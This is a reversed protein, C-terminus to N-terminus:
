AVVQRTVKLTRPHKCATAHWLIKEPFLQGIAISTECTGVHIHTVPNTQSCPMVTSDAKHLDKSASDWGDLAFM